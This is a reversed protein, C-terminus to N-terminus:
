IEVLFLDLRGHANSLYCAVHGTPDLNARVQFDYGSGSMGHELIPTVGSGDLAVLSLHTQNSLLCRNARVSVHGMNWTEFLVRRELTALDVHVCAGRQNDEGVMFGAGCDSHGLAGDADRLIREQGSALTVIRNDEDEKIVLYAGDATVQSEDLVGNAGFFQVSGHRAAVTGIRQYPGDNVIREVTACHTQGDESSHAQWIRCDPHVSRIDMVVVDQGTFPNVRRLLPGDCLSVSGSVEFYWGEATGGYGLLSGLREVHGTDLDVRFFRPRGDATGVFATATRGHLWCMPWYSYARNVLDGDREDTVRISRVAGAPVTPGSPPKSRNPARDDWVADGM